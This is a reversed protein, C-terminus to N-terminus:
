ILLSLLLWNIIYCRVEIVCCNLNTNVLVAWIRHFSHRSSTQFSFLYHDLSFLLIAIYCAVSSRNYAAVYKVKLIIDINICAFPFSYYYLLNLVYVSYVINYYICYVYIVYTKINKLILILIWTDIYHYHYGRYVWFDRLILWIVFM